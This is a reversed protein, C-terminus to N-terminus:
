GSSTGLQCGQGVAASLTIMGDKRTTFVKRTGGKWPMGAAHNGYTHEQTDYQMAEDSIIIVQPEFFEFVEKAYGSERGHHSAIFVNVRALHQQFQEQTLLKLWGARELDGPFVVSLGPYHLFLVLSLNNTDTFAPYNNHFIQFEVSPYEPPDTVPGTYTELMVLLEKMGPGLPGTEQKLARLRDPTLSTNRHLIRIPIRDAVQRLRPLGSLHDEDYNLPFFREIGTCKRSLLYDAPYFGTEDNHGCDILMTNGNDAIVYACFGHAVDLIRIEM